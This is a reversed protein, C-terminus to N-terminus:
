GVVSSGTPATSALRHEDLVQLCLRIVAATRASAVRPCRQARREWQYADAM